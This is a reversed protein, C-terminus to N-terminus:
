GAPPFAMFCQQRRGWYRPPTRWGYLPLARLRLLLVNKVFFRQLAREIAAEIFEHGDAHMGRQAIFAMGKEVKRSDFAIGTIERDTTGQVELYDIHELLRNLKM